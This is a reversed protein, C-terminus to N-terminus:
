LDGAAFGKGDRLPELTGLFRNSMEAQAGNEPAYAKICVILHELETRSIQTLTYRVFSEDFGIM